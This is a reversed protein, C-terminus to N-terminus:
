EPQNLRIIQAPTYGTFQKLARTLHPQDYYGAESITDLISTGQQLLTVAQEARQMQRIHNQSLGTSQLFRHRVTREALALPPLEDELAAKIVPDCVLLEEQVLRKVFIEVNDYDPFQWTAGKLWFSQGSATPLPTEANVFDQIPLHPLWSGLKFKIWLLEAGEGYSVVGSTPLAGVILPQVQGNLKLFVMHWHSEAPRITSGAGTTWGHMITEIYPSESAREEFIISM